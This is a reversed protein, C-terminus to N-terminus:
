DIKANRRYQIIFMIGILLIPMGLAVPLVEGPNLNKKPNVTFDTIISAIPTDNGAVEAIVTLAYVGAKVFHIKWNLPLIQGPAITGIYLGKEASWDELDVPLKNATDVLSLYTTINNINKQTSNTIQGTVTVYDGATGNLTKASSITINVPMSSAQPRNALAMPTLLLEAILLIITTGLIKM